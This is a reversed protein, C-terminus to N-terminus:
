LEEWNGPNMIGRPDLAKRIKNMLTFTNKDMKKIIQKQAPVEAKWPIGGIEIARKNTEELAKRARNVDDEDARNFAYAYFFMMCHNIGIIRAGMSYATNFQGAIELGIRCADPFLEPPMITGVYEFGGGKRADAFRSLQTAPVELFRTKMMPPLAMFGGIKQDIYKKVSAFILNRKWKLEEKTNAGYNVNIHQFGEAWAPKPTMWSTIDEAMRTGSIKYLIDPVLAADETVFICADNFKYQPYLKIALKTVVGTTGAWGIFLGALDPLPAKSCWFPSVSCSGTKVVEGTPLVVELGTLMESHFGDSHSMHGSGHILVNGAITAIPPADPLSHKLDPHHKELYAKLMGQATGAEVVAYRSNENIELIHNMRKLDLIIGGKLARTLGSLVLGGGMPIVPIENENALIMIRSIEETSGPMVIFDPECPEMTGADMSYFYKEEPHDSVYETGVIKVLANLMKKM